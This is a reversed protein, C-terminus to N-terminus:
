SALFSRPKLGQPVPDVPARGAASSYPYAEAREVLRARVPNMWIYERHQEYDDLDRV